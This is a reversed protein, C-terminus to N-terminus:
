GGGHVAITADHGSLSHVEPVVSAQFASDRALAARPRASAIGFREFSWKPCDLCRNLIVREVFFGALARNRANTRSIRRDPSTYDPLSIDRV